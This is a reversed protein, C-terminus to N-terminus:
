HIKNKKKKLMGNARKLRSKLKLLDSDVGAGSEKVIESKFSTIKPLYFKHHLLSELLSHTCAVTGNSEVLFDTLEKNEVGPPLTPVCSPCGTGCPCETIIEYCLLLVDRFSEYIKEGYGVGGEITDYLYLASKWEEGDIIALSVDTEIDGSDGMCLSPAVKKLIYSLGYFASTAYKKNVKDLHTKWDLSPLLCFGTTDYEFAALTIPGYGVNEYTRERIKKYLKPQKNVEIAGFQLLHGEVEKKENVELVSLRKEWVAETYYDVRVPEVKCLKMELDLDLSMYKIGLHQYIADKYLTGRAGIPDLEGIVVGDCIIEINYDTMGRLNVGKAPYDPLAYRYYDRHLVM